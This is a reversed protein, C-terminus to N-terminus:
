NMAIEQRILFNQANEFAIKTMVEKGFAEEVGRLFQPYTSSNSFKEQFTPFTLESLVDPPIDFGGYFDAGLSLVDEGGLKLAHAIHAIFDEFTDGVFRRVFNLGILGSRQIIESALPDPLNRKINTKERFNSHSAIIPIKFNSRDIQRIIDWALRDSTHSLDIAIKKGHLFELFAKGDPKLGVDTANGGGFRNEHNWTMSAYCIKEVDLIESIRSFLLDLPEDEEIIASLNELALIGHVGTFSGTFAAISRVDDPRESLLRKYLELQRMGKLASGKQTIAAIAFTQVRVNGEKLQPLSCNVAASDFDLEHPKGEICGLLDCHLDIVPRNM